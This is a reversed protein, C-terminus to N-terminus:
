DIKFDSGFGIQKQFLIKKQDTNFVLLKVQILPVSRLGLGFEKYRPGHFGHIPFRQAHGSLWVLALHPM